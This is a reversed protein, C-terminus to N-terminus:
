HFCHENHIIFFCIHLHIRMASVNYHSHPPLIGIVNDIFVNFYGIFVNLYVIFINFYVLFVNLYM